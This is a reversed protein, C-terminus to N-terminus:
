TIESKGLLWMHCPYQFPVGLPLGVGSTEPLVAAEGCHKAPPEASDREVFHFQVQKGFLWLLLLTGTALGKFRYIHERALQLL